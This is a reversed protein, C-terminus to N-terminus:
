TKSMNTEHKWENYLYIGWFVEIIQLTAYGAYLAWGLQSEGSQVNIYIIAFLIAPILGSIRLWVPYLSCWFMFVLAPIMPMAMTAEREVNIGVKSLAALSIGHTIGLLIYASAAVHQGRLGTYRGAMVSASIAFANGIQYLWLQASSGHDCLWGVWGMVLNLVYCIVIIYILSKNEFDSKTM